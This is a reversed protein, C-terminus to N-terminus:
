FFCIRLEDLIVLDYREFKRKYATLQSKSMAEKLEIILNPVSIFSVSKGEMCAKIGLGIAYHTKGSGPTGILIINEKEEIFKLTDLEEFEKIFEPNYVRKDFDELYKKIPFKAYRLRKKVGNEKRQIIEKELLEDLFIEIDKKTQKAEKIEDEYNNFVYSLKLTKSNEKINM